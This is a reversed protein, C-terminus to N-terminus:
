YEKAKFCVDCLYTYYCTSIHVTENKVFPAKCNDCRQKKMHFPNKVVQSIM